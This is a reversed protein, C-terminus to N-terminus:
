DRLFSPGQHRAAWIKMRQARAPTHSRRGSGKNLLAPNFEPHHEEIARVHPRVLLQLHLRLPSRLSLSIMTFRKPSRTAAIAVLAQAIAAAAPAPWRRGSQVPGPVHVGVRWEGQQLAQPAYWLPHYSIPAVGAVAEHACRLM